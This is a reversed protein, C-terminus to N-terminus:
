ITNLTILQKAKRSQIIKYVGFGIGSFLLMLLLTGSNLGFGAQQKDAAIQAQDIMAAYSANSDANKWTQYTENTEVQGIIVEMAQDLSTVNGSKYQDVAVLIGQRVYETKEANSFKNWPDNDKPGSFWQAVMPALKLVAAIIGAVIVPAIGLQDNNQRYTPTNSYM